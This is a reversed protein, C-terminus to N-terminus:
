KKLAMIYKVMTKADEKALQPHAPMPIQGWVGAGGAIIKGALKDIVEDSAPAYKNAVDQYAPGVVKEKVKHCTLCDSKAVLSLGKKYDDSKVPAPPEEKAVEKAEEKAEEKREEKPANSDNSGCSIVVCSFSLIVFLKKM